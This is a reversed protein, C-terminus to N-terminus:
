KKSVGIGWGNTSICSGDQYSYTHILGIMPVVQLSFIFTGLFEKVFLM